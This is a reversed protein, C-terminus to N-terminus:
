SKRMVFLMLMASMCSIYSVLIAVGCNRLYVEWLYSLGFLSPFFSSSSERGEDVFGDWKGVSCMVYIGKKM